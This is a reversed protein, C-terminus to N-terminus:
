CAASMFANEMLARHLQSVIVSLEFRETGHQQRSIMEKTLVLHISQNPKLFANRFFLYKFSIRVVSVIEINSSYQQIVCALERLSHVLWM